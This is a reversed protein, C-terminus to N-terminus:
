RDAAPTCAVLILRATSATAPSPATATSPSGAAARRSPTSNGTPCCTAASAAPRTCPLATPTATSSSTPAPPPTCPTSREPTVDMIAMTKGGHAERSGERLGAIIGKRQALPMALFQQQWAPDRVQARFAMYNLTPPANPTAMSWRSASGPSPRWMRNPWCADARSGPRLTRRGPLRPQRCDLVGGRRRRQRRPDRRHHIQPLPHRPRRRRGLIRVPRRAPVTRAGGHRTGGPLPLVGRRHAPAVGAPAPRLYVARDHARAHEDRTSAPNAQGDTM